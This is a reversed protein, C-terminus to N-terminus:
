IIMNWSNCNNCSDTTDVGITVRGQLAKEDRSRTVSRPFTSYGRGRKGSDMVSWGASM